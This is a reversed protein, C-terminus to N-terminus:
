QGTSNKQGAATRLLDLGLWVNEKKAGIITPRMDYLLPGWTTRKGQPWRVYSGKARLKFPTLEGLSVWVAISKSASVAGVKSVSVVGVKSVSVAGVKSSSM